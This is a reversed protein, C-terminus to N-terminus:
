PRLGAALVTGAVLLVVLAAASFGGAVTEYVALVVGASAVGVLLSAGAHVLEGRRTDAARGVQRGVTVAQEGLDWALVAGLAAGALVFPGGGALGGLVVGGFLGLAGAAVAGASGRTVGATVALLGVAGLAGGLPSAVGALAVSGVAAVLALRGSLWAPDDDFGEAAASM